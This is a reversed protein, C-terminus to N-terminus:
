CWNVSFSWRIIWLHTSMKDQKEENNYRKFNYPHLEMRVPQASIDEPNQQVTILGWFTLNAYHLIFLIMNLLWPTLSFYINSRTPPLDFVFVMSSGALHSLERRKKRRTAKTQTPHLVQPFYFVIASMCMSCPWHLHTDPETIRCPLAALPMLAREEARNIVQWVSVLGSWCSGPSWHARQGRFHCVAPRASGRQGGWVWVPSSQQRQLRKAGVEMRKGNVENGYRGRSSLILAIANLLTLIGVNEDWASCGFRFFFGWCM